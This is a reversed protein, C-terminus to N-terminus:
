SHTLYCRVALYEMSLADYCFLTLDYKSDALWQAEAAKARHVDTVTYSFRAGTMDTVLVAAGHTVTDCFGFQGPHDIGGIVLPTEYASGCFRAPCSSLAGSDWVDAVPLTIGFAPLEVLAVYDRGDLELVPMNGGPYLGPTGATREPLRAALKAATQGSHLVGQHMRVQTAVVWFLSLLVLCAGLVIILTSLRKKM